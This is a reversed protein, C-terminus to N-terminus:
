AFVGAVGIQILLLLQAFEPILKDSKVISRTISLVQDPTCIPLWYAVPPMVILLGLM